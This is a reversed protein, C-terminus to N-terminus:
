VEANKKGRSFYEPIKVEFEKIFLKRLTPGSVKREIIFRLHLSVACHKCHFYGDIPIVFGDDRFRYTIENRCKPCKVKLELWEMSYDKRLVILFSTYM